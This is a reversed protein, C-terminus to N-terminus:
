KCNKISLDLIGHLSKHIDNAADAAAVDAAALRKCAIVTVSVRQAILALRRVARGGAREGAM